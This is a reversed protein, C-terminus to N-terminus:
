SKSFSICVLKIKKLVNTIKKFYEFNLLDKSKKYNTIFGIFQPPIPHNIIYKLTELILSVM